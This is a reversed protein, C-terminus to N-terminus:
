THVAFILNEFKVYFQKFQMFNKNYLLNFQLASAYLAAALGQFRIRSANPEIGGAESM